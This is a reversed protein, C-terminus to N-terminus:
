RKPTPPAYQAAGGAADFAARLEPLPRDPVSHPDGPLTRAYVELADPYGDGDADDGSRLVAYLVDPFRAKGGAAADQRFAAQLAQGFPNWPAGGSDNVHCFTCAMVRRDLEWLANGRDYHLQPIAQLRYRPMASAVPVSLVVLAALTGPLVWAPRTM